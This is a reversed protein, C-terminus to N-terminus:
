SSEPTKRWGDTSPFVMTLLLASLISMIPLVQAVFIVWKFESLFEANVRGLIPLFQSYVSIGQAATWLNRRILVILVYLFLVVATSLAVSMIRVWASHASRMSRVRWAWVCGTLVSMILSMKMTLELAEPRTRNGYDVQLDIHYTVWLLACGAIWFLALKLLLFAIRLLKSKPTVIKVCGTSM